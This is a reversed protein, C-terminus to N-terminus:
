GAARLGYGSVRQWPVSYLNRTITCHVLMGDLVLLLVELRKMSRFGPYSLEPLLPGSPEYSDVKHLTKTEMM